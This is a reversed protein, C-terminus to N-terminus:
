LTFPDIKNGKLIYEALLKSRNEPLFSIDIYDIQLDSISGVLSAEVEMGDKTFYSGKKNIVGERSFFFNALKFKDSCYIECGNIAQVALAASISIRRGIFSGPGDIFIIKKINKMSLSLSRCLFSINEPIYESKLEPVEFTLSGLIQSDNFITVSDIASSSDIALYM